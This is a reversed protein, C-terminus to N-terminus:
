RPRPTEHQDATPEELEQLKALERQREQRASEEALQDASRKAQEQRKVLDLIRQEAPDLGRGRQVSLLHKKGDEGSKELRNEITQLDQAERDLRDARASLMAHRENDGEAYGIDWCTGMLKQKVIKATALHHSQAEAAAYELKALKGSSLAKGIWSRAAYLDREHKLKNEALHRKNFAASAPQMIHANRPDDQAKRLAAQKLAAIDHTKVKALEAKTKDIEVQVRQREARCIALCPDVSVVQQVELLKPPAKGIGPEDLAGQIHERAQEILVQDIAKLEQLTPQYHSDAERKARAQQVLDIGPRDLAAQIRQRTDLRAQEHPDSTPTAPKPTESTLEALVDMVGQEPEPKPSPKFGKIEFGADAASQSAHKVFEDSGTFIMNKWGKARALDIMAQIEEASGTGATIRDGHDILQGVEKGNEDQLGITLQDKGAKVWALRRALADEIESKYREELIKAKYRQRKDLPEDAEISFLNQSTVAPAEREITATSMAEGPTTTTTTTVKSRNADISKLYAGVARRAARDAINGAAQDLNGAARRAAALNADAADLNAGAAAIPSPIAGARYRELEQQDRTQDYSIEQNLHKWTFQDGLQSGKFAVGDLEFSFGNLRGTSALNPRVVVGAAHLHRVFQVATPHDAKAENILRQLKQRPPEDNTRLAMEVEDKKLQKSEPMVIKGTEADYTPGKTITLGHERELAQIHRTSALNENKGLYVKGETSVRSAVIHIHQGDADDHLVYARPHAEAFGMRQMYDDAIAVWQADTLKEDKPLRLANHWVPKEIDPRTRRVQGFEAALQRADQGSMNGGLLRGPEAGKTARKFVYDLAGRFGRGRSIKQMGKM